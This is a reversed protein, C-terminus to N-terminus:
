RLLRGMDKIARLTGQVTGTVKSEGAQRPAYPVPTEGIRWGAAHARLVMELPWGSRRDKMALGLLAERGCCRMPGLDTFAVKTRRRLELALARNAVRQHVQMAGKSPRRAGLLLDFRGGVVPGAVLPLHQPDLSGDSDLFCVYPNSAALLGAYCASGFGPVKETVVLAGHSAAVEGTGDTSNNDVVIPRYGDPMRGLLWPLNLAEDKAPIIVDILENPTVV